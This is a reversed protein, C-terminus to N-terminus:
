AYDSYDEYEKKRRKEGYIRKHVQQVPEQSKLSFMVRVHTQMIAFIKKYSGTQNIEIVRVGKM